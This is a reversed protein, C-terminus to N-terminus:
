MGKATVITDAANQNWAVPKMTRDTVNGLAQEFPATEARCGQGNYGIAEITAESTELDIRVVISKKGFLNM